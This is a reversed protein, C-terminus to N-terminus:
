KPATGEDHSMANEAAASPMHFPGGDRRSTGEIEAELGVGDMVRRVKWLTWQGRSLALCALVVYLLVAISKSNM